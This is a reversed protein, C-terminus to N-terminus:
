SSSETMTKAQREVEDANEKQYHAVLVEMGRPGQGAVVNHSSGSNFIEPFRIDVHKTPTSRHFLNKDFGAQQIAATHLTNREEWKEKYHSYGDILKSVGTLQGDKGPRSAAYLGLSLPIAALVVYFQTGLSEPQPSAHSEGHPEGHETSTEHSHKVEDGEKGHQATSYQRAVRSTALPLREAAQFAKRRAAYM